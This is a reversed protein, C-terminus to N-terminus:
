PAKPAAARLQDAFPSKPFQALFRTARSAAEGPRGARSLASIAVAEREQYLMGKAFRRHGEDAKQAALAPNTAALARVEALQRVEEALTPREPPASASPAPAGAKTKASAVVPPAEIPDVIPEPAPEIIPAPLTYASAASAVMPLAALPAVPSPSTPSSLLAAGAILGAGGGGILWLKHRAFWSPDASPAPGTTIADQLRDLGGGVDFPVNTSGLQGLAQKLEPELEPDDVMRTPPQSM